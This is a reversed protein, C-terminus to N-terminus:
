IIKGFLSLKQAVERTHNAKPDLKLISLDGKPLVGIIDTKYALFLLGVPGKIFAFERDFALGENAYEESQLAAVCDAAKPHDGLICALFAKSMTNVYPASIMKMGSSPNLEIRNEVVMNRTLGQETKRTPQREVYIVKTGSNCMGLPFPRYKNFLPSNMQKRIIKTTPHTDMWTDLSPGLTDHAAPVSGIIDSPYVRTVHEDVGVPELYIRLIHDPKHDTIAVVFYPLGDYMVITNRLRIIAENLNEYFNVHAPM